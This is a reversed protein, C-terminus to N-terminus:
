HNDSGEDDKERKKTQAVHGTLASVLNPNHHGTRSGSIYDVDMKMAFQEM